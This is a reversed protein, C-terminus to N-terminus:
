KEVQNEKEFIKLMEFIEKSDNNNFDNSDKYYELDSIVYDIAKMGLDSKISFDVQNELLLKVIEPSKSIVSSILPSFGNKGTENINVGYDFFVKALNYDGLFCVDSFMGKEYLGKNLLIKIIELFNEVSNNNYAIKKNYTEFIIYKLYSYNNRDIAKLNLENEILKKLGEIDEIECLKQFENEYRPFFSNIFIDFNNALIDYNFSDDHYEFTRIKNNDELDIAIKFKEDNKINFINYNAIFLFEPSYDICLECNKHLELEELSYFYEVEIWYPKQYSDFLEYKNREPYGGNNKVLFDKYDKDLKINYKKEFKNIEDIKISKNPKEIKLM